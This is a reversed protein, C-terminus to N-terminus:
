TGETVVLVDAATGIFNVQGRWLNGPMMEYSGGTANLRIGTDAVATGGLNLWIANASDNVFLAYKRNVNAALGTTSAPGAAVVPATHAAVTFGTKQYTKVTSCDRADLVIINLPITSDSYISWDGAVPLLPAIGSEPSYRDDGAATGSPFLKPYAYIKGDPVTAPVLLSPVRISVKTWTRSPLTFENPFAPAPERKPDCCAISM